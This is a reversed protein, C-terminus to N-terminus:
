SNCPYHRELSFIYVAAMCTIENSHVLIQLYSFGGAPWALTNHIHPPSCYTSLMNILQMKKWPHIVNIRVLTAWSISKLHVTVECCLWLCTQRGQLRLYWGCEVVSVCVYMWENMWENFHLKYCKLCNIYNQNTSSNRGSRPLDIAQRNDTLEM